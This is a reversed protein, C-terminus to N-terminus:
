AGPHLPYGKSREPVAPDADACTPWARSLAEAVLVSAILHREEPHENLFKVM